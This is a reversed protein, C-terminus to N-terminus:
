WECQIKQSQLCSSGEVIHPTPKPEFVLTHSHLGFGGHDYQIFWRSGKQVIKTLHRQPLGNIIDSHNWPADFDAFSCPACLSLLAQQVEIPLASMSADAAVAASPQMFTGLLISLTAITRIVVCRTNSVAVGEVLEPRVAFNNLSIKYSKM